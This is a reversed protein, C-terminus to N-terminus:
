RLYKLPDQRSRGNWIEFHVLPGDISEGSTGLTTGANVKSGKGVSVTQLNAYVSRVGNGHDVIVLSQFGPLFTVSSVEGSAVSKVISGTKTAIDIGPNDLTTGTQPNTYTGYGNLIKNSATPWPLSRAAFGKVSEPAPSPPEGAKGKKKRRAAEAKRQEEAVLTNILSRLKNASQKKQALEKSLSSKDKRLKQLEQQGRAISSKLRREEVTMTSLVNERTTSYDELLEQEADLSDRLQKMHKRYASLSRSMASFVADKSMASESMGRHEAKYVLISKLTRAYDDEVKQLAAQTSEIQRNMAEASDKLMALDQELSAIFRTIQHRQREYSTLTSKKSREQKTLKDIQAQTSKISSRLRELEKKKSSISQAQVGGAVGVLLTILLLTRIM